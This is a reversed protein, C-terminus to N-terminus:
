FTLHKVNNPIEKRERIHGHMIQKCIFIHLSFYFADFHKLYSQKCAQIRPSTPTIHHIEFTITGM